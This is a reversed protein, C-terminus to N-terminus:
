WQLATAVKRAVRFTYGLGLLGIGVGLGLRDVFYGLTPSLYSFLHGLSYDSMWSPVPIAKILESIVSLGAKVIKLGMDHYFGSIGDWLEHIRDLLWQKFDSLWGM